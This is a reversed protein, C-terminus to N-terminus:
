VLSNARSYVKITPNLNNKLVIRVLSGLSRPEQIWGYSRAVAKGTSYRTDLLVQYQVIGPVFPPPSAYYLVGTFCEAVNKPAM